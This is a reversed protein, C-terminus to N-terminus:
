YDIGDDTMSLRWKSENVVTSIFTYHHGPAYQPVHEHYFINFMLGDVFENKM